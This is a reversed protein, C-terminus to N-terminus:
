KASRVPLVPSASIDPRVVGGGTFCFSIGTDSGPIEYAWIQTYTLRILDTAFNMKWSFGLFDTHLTKVLKSADYLGALEDQTPVRWDMYGGGRYKECYYKASVWSVERGNDKAAWMLNTKTDLVTGNDYAIFRGDRGVEKAAPFAPLRAMALRRKEEEFKRREEELAERKRILDKEEELKWRDAREDTAPAIASSPGEAETGPRFYFEGKLSSLEWPTQKYQSLESRVEKFVREIPLGPRSINRLLAETYPSNRGAGDGATQGPGTAFSIFTGEPASSIIALGRSASRISRAYPNDRCADLLVINLGNNANAMEDLIKNADVAQYKVDSEKNIRAGIPILYNVGAVQVGHGAYYFLGVGGQRLRKGFDEVAEEMEQCRINKKLIVEFGLRQIASAMDTADHAPNKLPGTEYSGNGIVLAIRREPAASTIGSLFLAPFTLCVLLTAIKRMPPELFRIKGPFVTEKLSANVSPTNEM